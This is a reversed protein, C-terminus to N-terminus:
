HEESRRENGRGVSPSEIYKRQDVTSPGGSLARAVWPGLAGKSYGKMSSHPPRRLMPPLSQNRTRPSPPALPSIGGQDNQPELKWGNDPHLVTSPPYNSQPPRRRFPLPPARLRAWATKFIERLHLPM